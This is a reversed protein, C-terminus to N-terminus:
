GMNVLTQMVADQTKITQANAQYVRQATIMQVLQATLDVNSDEVASSQVAGLSGSGPAGVIPLGSAATEAWQNNGLPNLGQPNRFDALVVQGLNRTQGNTYRGSIIGQGTVEFGALEGSAYGNQTLNNVSFPSGYQTSGTLDFTYSLPTTAGNTLTISTNLPMATTLAGSSNFNLTAPAGAGAGLNVNALAGGDAQGYLQWQGATATKIAYLSFAHANGLSDYVTGSTSFNYSTPDNPNFVATTPVTANANFNMGLVFQSTTQPPIASFNIQIPSPSTPLINGNADVGYGTLKLGEANVIYGQSDFHFQGNRSYTIAGSQDMRYFGKGNIAIDLPNSTSTINGQTFQQAVAAVKVGIGVNSAGSGLLSNAYVDAFQTQSSKFGVTEANAINNGIVDLNASAANLGSLGVSFGM